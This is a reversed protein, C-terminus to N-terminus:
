SSCCRCCSTSCMVRTTIRSSRRRSRPSPGCSGTARTCRGSRRRERRKENAVGLDSPGSWGDKGARISRWSPRDGPHRSLTLSDRHGSFVRFSDLSLRRDAVDAEKPPAGGGGGGGRGGGRGGARGPPLGARLGGRLGPSLGELLLLVSANTWAFGLTREARPALLEGRDAGQNGYEVPVEASRSVVDYKEKLLGNHSGAIDLVM